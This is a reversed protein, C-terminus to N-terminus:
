RHYVGVGFDYCVGPVVGAVYLTTAQSLQTVSVVVGDQVSLAKYERGVPLVFPIPLVACLVLGAVRLDSEYTWTETGDSAVEVTTPKGLREIMAQTSIPEAVGYFVDALEREIHKSGVIGIGICGPLLSAVLLV